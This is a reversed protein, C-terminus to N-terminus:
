QRRSAPQKVTLSRQLVEMLDIVNQRSPVAPGARPPAVVQKTKLMSVVATRYRDELHAPDFDAMMAAVIHEAVGLM